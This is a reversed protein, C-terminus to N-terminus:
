PCDNKYGYKVLAVIGIFWIAEILFAEGIFLWKVLDSPPSSNNLTKPILDWLAVFPAAFFRVIPDVSSGTISAVLRPKYINNFSWNIIWPIVSGVAPFFATRLFHFVKKLL